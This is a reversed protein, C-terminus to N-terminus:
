NYKFVFEFWNQKEQFFNKQDRHIHSLFTNRTCIECQGSTSNKKIHCSYYYYYFILLVIIMVLIIIM